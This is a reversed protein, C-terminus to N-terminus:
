LFNPSFRNLLINHSWWALWFGFRAAAALAACLLVADQWADSGLATSHLRQCWHPSVASPGRQKLSSARCLCTQRNLCSMSLTFVQLFILISPKVFEKLALQWWSLTFLLLRLIRILKEFKFMAIKINLQICLGLRLSILWVWEFVLLLVEM